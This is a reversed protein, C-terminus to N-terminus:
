PTEVSLGLLFPAADRMMSAFDISVIEVTPRPNPWAFQYITGNGGNSSDGGIFGEWAILPGEPDTSPALWWDFVQREYRIPLTVAEGDKYHVFMEGVRSGSGVKWGTGNLVHLVKVKRNIRINNVNSPFRDPATASLQKSTLQIVGNVEFEVGNFVSRGKPFKALSPGSQDERAHLADSLRANYYPALDITTVPVPPREIRRSAFYLKRATLERPNVLNTMTSEWDAPSDVLKGDFTVQLAPDHHLCRLIPVVSGVRAMQLQRWDKMTFKAKDSIGPVLHASFEYIYSSSLKPDSIGNNKIEGTRRSVPCILLNPSELHEPVLESLWPPLAKHAQRYSGIGKYITELNATCAEREGDPAAAHAVPWVLCCAMWLLSLRLLMCGLWKM